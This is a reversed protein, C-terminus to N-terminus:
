RRRWDWPMMFKGQWMGRGALRAADEQPVYEKSYRRYAVALGEEVLRANINTAGGDIFCNAIHRGYRDKTFADCQVTRNELLRDMFWASRSGCRWADGEATYCPQDSEPADIGNLRIREGHIEITDGDIVSAQGTIPNAYAASAALVAACAIIGMLKM